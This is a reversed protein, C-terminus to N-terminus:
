YSGKIVVGFLTDISKTRAGAQATMRIDFSVFRSNIGQGADPNASISRVLFRDFSVGTPHLPGLMIGNQEVVLSGNELFFRHTVTIGDETRQVTISSPDTGLTSDQLVLADANRVEFIMRDFGSTTTHLLARTMRIEQLSGMTTILATVMVGSLVTFLAMYLLTEILTVGSQMNIRNTNCHTKYM